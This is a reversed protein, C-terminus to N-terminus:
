FLTQYPTDATNLDYTLPRRKSEAQFISPRFPLTPYIFPFLFLCDYKLGNSFDPKLLQTSFQPHSPLGTPPQMNNFPNTSFLLILPPSKLDKGLPPSQSTRYLRPDILIHRPM